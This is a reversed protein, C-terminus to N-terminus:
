EFRGLTVYPQPDRPENALAAEFADRARDRVGLAAYASGALNLVRPETPHQTLVQEALRSAAAFEGRLLHLMGQYYSTEWRAGCSQRGRDLVGAPNDVDGQRVLMSALQDWGGYLDPFNHTADTASQIAQDIQGTMVQLRSLAVLPAIASPTRQVLGELVQLAD